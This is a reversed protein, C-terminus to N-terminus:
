KEVVITKTISATGVQIRLIYVGSPLEDLLISKRVLGSTIGGDVSLVERGAMNSLTYRVHEEGRDIRFMINLVNAVPNPYLQLQYSEAYDSVSSVRIDQEQSENTCGFTNTVRVKYLGNQAPDLSSGIANPIANGNYFWQYQTISPDVPASLTRNGVFTIQPVAPRPNVTVRIPQSSGKCGDNNVVTCTYNDSVTATITRTSAGNSWTYQAFGAGADLVVNGGDCFTTPGNATLQIDPNPLLRVIVPLSSGVCGDSITVRVSYAGPQSVVITRTNAGNSWEYGRYNAGADLIVSGGQCFSLSGNSTITPVPNNTSQVTVPASERRCGNANQTTVTLSTIFSGNGRITITRSTAGNSWRYSSYGDGADLTVSGGDCFILPGNATIVPAPASVVRISINSSRATCGDSNTAEVSYTGAEGVNIVATTAGNSWRYTNFGSSAVLGITEGECLNTNGTPTISVVPLPRIGVNLVGSASCNSNPISAILSVTGNAGTGWEVVIQNTNLGSRIVGGSASWSYTVGQFFPVAYNQVSGACATSTGTIQSSPLAAVNVNFLDSQTSCGVTNTETVRISGVGPASWRITVASTNQGNTVVGGNVVWQFTSSPQGASYSFDQGTCAITSGSIVPTPAPNVQIQRTTSNSCNTTTNRETLSVTGAGTSTWRVQVSNTGQGLEVSGGTASWQYQSGSSLTFYNVVQNQCVTANGSIVASPLPNIVIPNITSTASCGTASITETVMVSGQGVAGWQVNITASNTGTTFPTGSPIVTWSYTRGTQFSTSYTATSNSCVSASGAVSPTPLPNISVTATATVNCQTATITEIVQISGSTSNSWTVNVSSTGLGNTISGGNVTWTYTRGTNNAVSYVHQSNSCVSGMGNTSSTIAPTPIPNVTISVPTSQKTCGNPTTEVVSLIGTGTTNWVVGVNSLTSGSVITGGSINWSYTNGATPNTNYSIQTGVCAQGPGSVLPNPTPNITVSIQSNASCQGSVETVRISANGVTNYTLTLVNGNANQVTGNPATVLWTYTNGTSNPTSYTHTSGQCVANLGNTSSTITPTPITGVNVAYNATTTACGNANTETVRVFSNAGSTNWIVTAIAQSGGSQISGNTSVSWNYTSGTNNNTSYQITSGNCVSQNGSISPTPNTSVAVNTQTTTSCGNRIEVVQVTGAGSNTWNVQISNTTASGQITGGTVTWSYTNGSVNPTSFTQTAGGICASAPGTIQPAPTQVTTVSLPSSITTCNSSNTESVQVSANAVVSNWTVSVTNTGQGQFTTGTPLVTWAYTSGTNQTTTFTVARGTCATSSGSVSPTPISNVSISLNNSQTSCNGATENVSVVANGSTAWTVLITAQNAGNTFTQPTGNLTATWNYTRGSTFQTSYQQQTGACVATTGSVSPSPTPNVTITIPATETSCSASTTERVKISGQGVTNWAVQISNTNSNNVVSGNTVTWTYTSGVTNVTSYTHTSGQCVASLGNTSSTISPTPLPNITVNVLSSQGSCTGNTEIVRVTGSTSTGWTVVVSPQTSNATTGGTVTWAFTSNTGPTQISYTSQSGSCVTNVGQVIPNPTTVTIVTIPNSQGVCNATNTENVRISGTGASWNVQVSSGTSVGGNFTGGTATWSYTSTSAPAVVSYTQPTGTCATTSGSITPTPTPNVTIARSVTTTCQSSNIESVTVTGNASGWTVSVANSGQNSFQVGSPAITWIFTNTSNATSYTQTSGSCVTFNGTISPTPVPNVTVNYATTTVSCGTATITETVQVSGTSNGWTVSVTNNGNQAIVAGAGAVVWNYTRGTNSATSYVQTSGACVSQAGSIQPTPNANITVSQSVSTTCQSSNIERITLVGTGVTGWQIQVSSSTTSNGSVTGGNVTWLYSNGSVNTTSYTHTSNACVNTLGNTSSAIAPTPNANVVVTYLPSQGSCNTNVETVRITGSGAGGWVASINQGTATTAGNITGGSIVWNYSSGSAGNATYSTTSNACVALSGTVTPTPVVQANIVFQSSTGTCNSNTSETVTLITQGASTWQMQVSSGTNSLLTGAGTRNWSFTSGSQGGSVTYTQTTNSCPSQAGTISPTPTTNVTVNFGATTTSCGSSTITETVVVTGNSTGWTVAIQNTGQGSFSTGSPTVVWAYTRGTASQVSYQTQQGSCVVSNGSIQPTPNANVNVAYPSTTTACGTATITETVSVSATGATGWIVTASNASQNLTPNGNGTISWAWTRGSGSATTYTQSSGACVSQAGSIQPTPNANVVITTPAVTTTCQSNNIERIGISGNGLQNWQVQIVASTSNNNVFTGGTATWLYSSGTNSAVSYTQTSNMCVGASALGNTSSTIVPNPRANISVNFLASTGSCIGQQEVVSLSGSTGTGWAVSISSGTATSAGNVTGGNITWNYTNNQNVSALTYSRTDNACVVNSGTIVPNPNVQPNITFQSSTGACQASSTETVTITTTGSGIINLSLTQNLPSGVVSTGTGQRNWSFTSGTLVNTAVYNQLTGVCPQQLGSVSPNPTANVNFNVSASGQCNTLTNTEIISVSASGTSNWTATISNATATSSTGSPTVTWSYSRNASSVVSFTKTQGVCVATGGAMTITPTPLPNVIVSFQPSTASCNSATITETVTITGNNTGFAITAINTSGGSQISNGTGSVSWSYTRGTSASGTVTYQSTSNACVQGAGSVSPTPLSNITINNTVVTSCLATAETVSITGSSGQGWVVNISNTNTAGNITGGTVVWAYTNGANNTVSYTHASSACVSGTLGNTSTTMVTNPSASVTINQTANGTCTGNGATVNLSTGTTQNFVVTVTSQNSAGSITGGNVIWSYTNFGSQTQYTVPTNTCATTAGTISLVPTQTISVSYPTTTTSCGNRIEQVSVSGSTLTNSWVVNVSNQTTASVANGNVVSWQYTSGGNSATQYTYQTSGCVTQLGSIVPNPLANVTVITPSTTTTCAPTTSSIVRVSVSCASVTTYNVTLTPNTANGVITGGTVTWLYSYGSINQTSFQGQTGVCASTSPVTIVPAPTEGVNVSLDNQTSCNLSTSQVVRVRGTGSTNWTVNISNGTTPTFTGGNVQWNFTSGSPTNPTSYALTQGTCVATNGTVNPTPLAGVTVTYASSTNFCTTTNDTVKVTLNYTGPTVWNVTISNNALTFQHNPSITYEYTFNSTNQDPTANYTLQTGVCTTPTGSIVPSPLANVQVNQRINQGCYPLSDNRTVFCVVQANGVGQWTISVRSQSVNVPTITGAVGTVSWTYTFNGGISGPNAEYIFSMQPTGNDRCGKNPNLVWSPQPLRVVRVPQRIAKSCAPSVDNRTVSVDMNYGGSTSYRVTVTNTTISGTVLQAVSPLNWLYSFNSGVSGGNVIYTYTYDPDGGGVCTNAPAQAFSPLPHANVVTNQQITQTCYPMSDNRMVTVTVVANGSGTYIVTIATSDNNYTFQNAVGTVTWQKTFNTGIFGPNVQYVIPAPVDPTSPSAVVVPSQCATAPNQVWSPNPRRTVQVTPNGTMTNQCSSPATSTAICSFTYPPLVQSTYATWNWQLSNGTGAIPALLPQNNVYLQYNVNSQSGSLQLIMDGGYPERACLNPTTTSLTFRAPVPYVNVNSVIRNVCGSDGRTVDVTVTSATPSLPLGTATGWAITVNPVNPNSPQVISAGTPGTISWSYQFDAGISGPTVSYLYTHQPTGNSGCANIPNNVFSPTPVRAVQTNMSATQPCAPSVDGRTVVVTVTGTGGNAGWAVTYSQNTSASILTTGSIGSNSWSYTFGSGINGPNVTYTVVAQPIGNGACATAPSQPTFAPTPVPNVQTNTNVTRTCTVGSITKSVAVSVTGVAGTGSNGWRVVVTSSTTTNTQSVIQSNAIGSLTWNYQPNTGTTTEQITYTYTQQPVGDGSCATTPASTFTPNLRPLITTNFNATNVCNYDTRTVLCSVTATQSSGGPNGWRVKFVSDTTSTTVVTGSPQNNISWSFSFSSGNSGPNVTYTYEDANNGENTCVSAPGTVTPNPVARVNTNVSDTQQCSPTVDGRSVLCRVRGSGANAWEVVLQPITSSGIITSGSIGSISWQYSFNSGIPGSSVQYVTQVKPTGNSACADQPAVVISPQPLENIFTNTRLTDECGNATERYVVQINGLGAGLWALTITNSSGFVDVSNSGSIVEYNTVGSPGISWKFQSASINGNQQISYTYIQRPQGNGVCGSANTSNWSYSPIPNVTVTQTRIESCPPTVDNRWVTCSVTVNTPTSVTGFNITATQQNSNTVTTGTLGSVTWNYTFNAGINGPNITYQQSKNWCATTAGQIVGPNPKANVQVTPTGPMLQSCNNANTAVATFTYVNGASLGSTVAPFDMVANTGSQPSGIASGNQYLQYTTTNGETNTMRLIAPDGACINPTTTVLSYAQPLQVVTVTQTSTNSCLSGTTQTGTCSITQANLSTWRVIVSNGTNSGVFQGGNSPLSWVFSMNTTSSSITYTYSHQASGTGLCPTTNGTFTVAPQAQVTISATVPASTCNFDTRTVVVGLSANVNSTSSGWTIQAVPNTTNASLTSNAPGGSFTWVYSFTSGNTGPNVTYTTSTGACPTLNPSTFSPNPLARVNVTAQGNMFNVCSTGASAQITYVVQGNTTLPGDTFALASGNTGTQTTTTASGDRYLTYTIGTQSNALNITANNGNCVNATTTSVDYATPVSVVQVTNTYTKSCVNALDTRTINLVVDVANAPQLWTVVVSQNTNSGTIQGVSSNSISWNYTYTVSGSPAPTPVANYTYTIPPTGTSVCASNGGTISATPQARVTIAQTMTGTCNPTVDTRTVLCSLTASVDSTTTGWTIQNSVSNSNTFSTGSPAGNLSWSYDFTGSTGPNVVYTVTSQGCPNITGSALTPTLNANVDVVPSNTMMRACSPPSSTRRAQIQFTTQATLAGSTLSIPNGTGTTTIGTATNNAFLEYTFGTESGSLNVTVTGGTCVSSQPVTVNFLSPRARVTVNQQRTNSCSTVIDTVLVSITASGAQTYSITAEQDTTSGIISGIGSPALTWQYTYDCLPCDKTYVYRYTSGECPTDGGQNSGTTAASVTGNPPLYADIYDPGTSGIIVSNSCAGSVDTRTVTCRLQVDLVTANGDDVTWLVTATPTNAGSTIVPISPPPFLSASGYTSLDAFDWQYNFSTGNSGPNIVYTTSSGQCVFPFPGSVYSPNPLPAVAVEAVGTMLNECANADNSVGRVTFQTTSTINSSTFTLQSGTGAITSGMAVNNAYLQYNVGSQSGNLLITASTGTCVTPTSTSVTYSSNPVDNITISATRTTTCTTTTHTVVCQLTATGLLVWRITPNNSTPNTIIASNVPIVSWQYTVNPADTSTISYSYSRQPTGTGICPTLGGTTTIASANPGATITASTTGTVSETYCNADYLSRGRYTRNGDPTVQYTITASSSTIPPYWRNLDDTIKITYPATGGTVTFTLNIPVNTCATATSPTLAATPCTGLPAVSQVVGPGFGGSFNGDRINLRVNATDDRFPDSTGSVAGNTKNGKVILGNRRYLINTTNINGANALPIRIFVDNNIAPLRLELQDLTRTSSGSQTVNYGDGSNITLITNPLGSVLVSGRLTIGDKGTMDLAGFYTGAGINIIDNASSVNIARQVSPSVTETDFSNITTYLNGAHIRALGFVPNDIKHVMLDEVAVNESASRTSSLAYSTNPTTPLDFQVSAMDINGSAPSGNGNRTMRLYNTAANFRGVRAQPSAGSFTLTTGSGAIRIADNRGRILLNGSAVLSVTNSTTTSSTSLVDNLFVGYGNASSYISSASGLNAVVNTAGTITSSSNFDTLSNTVLLASSTTSSANSSSSVDDGSFTIATQVNVVQVGPGSSTITNNSFTTVAGSASLDISQVRLATTTASGSSTNITNSSFTYGTGGATMNAYVMGYDASTGSATLLNSNCTPTFIGSGITFNNLVIGRYNFTNCNSTITAYTNSQLNIGISNNTFRNSSITNNISASGNGSLSVGMSTGATTGAFNQIQCNSLNLGGRPSGDFSVGVMNDATSTVPQIILNSLSVNNSSVLVVPSTSSQLTSVTSAYATGCVGGTGSGAITMARNVALQGTWINNAGLNLTGSTAVIPIVNSTLNAFQGTSINLNVTTARINQIGNSGIDAGTNFTLATFTHNEASALQNMTSSQTNEVGLISVVKNINTASQSIATGVTSNTGVSGNTPRVLITGNAAVGTVANDITGFANTGWIVGPPAGGLDSNVNAQSAWDADVAVTTNTSASIAFTSFSTFSGTTATANSNTLTLPLLTLATGDVKYMLINSAQTTPIDTTSLNDFQATADVLNSAGARDIQWRANNGILQTSPFRPLTIGSMDLASSIYEATYSASSASNHNVSLTVPKYTTSKGIPFSLGSTTGNATVNRRLGGRIFSTSGGGSVTGATFWSSPSIFGNTLTLTNITVNSSTNMTMVVGSGNMVLAPITAMGSGPGVMTFNKSVSPASTETSYTTNALNLTGGTAVIAIAESLIAGANANVTTATIGSGLFSYLDTNFTLQQISANGSGTKNFSLNTFGTLTVTENFTAGSTGAIVVISDGNQLISQLGGSGSWNRKATGATLGNGSNDTRTPDIFVVRKSVPNLLVAVYGNATGSAGQKSTQFGNTSTLGSSVTELAFAINQNTLFYAGVCKDSNSGGYYTSYLLSNTGTQSYDFLALYGDEVSGQTNQEANATVPLNSSQTRGSVVVRSNSINSVKTDFEDTTGGFYTSYLFASSGTGGVSTNYVTLIADNTGTGSVTQSYANATTPYGSKGVGTFAIIGNSLATVSTLYHTIGAGQGFYSSYLLQNTGSLSRDLKFVMGSEVASGLTSQYPSVTPVDTSNTSGAIYMITNSGPQSAISLAYDGGSGGFYTSYLLTSTGTQSIDFTCVFADSTGSLSARYANSMILSSANVGTSGCISVINSNHVAISYATFTHASNTGGFYTSYLLSNTGTTTTNLATVIIDSNTSVRSNRYFKTGTTQIPYDSSASNGTIFVRGNSDCAIGEPTDDLAGGLYSGYLLSSSGSQSPDVKIVYVDYNANLATQYGSFTPMQNDRNVRGTAYIINSNDVAISRIDANYNGNPGIYTGYVIPDIILEVSPNYNGVAFGISGNENQNFKCDVQVQKGEIVQYAYLSNHEVTGFHTTYSIKDPSITLNDHGVLRFKIVSPDAGPAVHIDYRLSGDQIDLKTDIGNYVNSVKVNDYVDAVAWKSQDNGIFYNIKYPVPNYGKSAVVNNAGEFEMRVVHSEKSVVKTQEAKKLNPENSTSGKLKYYDYVIGNTTIWASLGKLKAQFLVQNDWQGNNKTFLDNDLGKLLISGARAKQSAQSKDFALDKLSSKNLASLPNSLLIMLGVVSLFWLARQLLTCLPHM